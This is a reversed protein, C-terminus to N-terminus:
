VHWLGEPRCTGSLLGANSESHIVGELIDHQKGPVALRMRSKLIALPRYCPAGKTLFAGEKNEDVYGSAGSNQNSYPSPKGDGQPPGTAREPLAIGVVVQTKIFMTPHVQMKVCQSRAYDPLSMAMEVRPEGFAEKNNCSRLSGPM